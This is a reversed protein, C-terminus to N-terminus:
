GCLQMVKTIWDGFTAKPHVGSFSTSGPVTFTIADDCHGLYAPIDGRAFCAYMERLLDESPHALTLGRETDPACGRATLAIDGTNDSHLRLHILGAPNLGQGPGM